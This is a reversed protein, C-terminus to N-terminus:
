AAWRGFQEGLRLAVRDLHVRYKRTMHAFGKTHQELHHAECGPWVNGVDGGGAGRSKLHCAQTRTKQELANPLCIACPFTRVYALYEPHRGREFLQGGTRKTRPGCRKMAVRKLPKRKKRRAKPKPVPYITVGRTETNRIRQRM